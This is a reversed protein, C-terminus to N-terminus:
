EIRVHNKKKSFHKLLRVIVFYLLLIMTVEVSLVHVNADPHQQDPRHHTGVNEDAQWRVRQAVGRCHYRQLGVASTYSTRKAEVQPVRPTTTATATAATTAAAATSPSSSSPHTAAAAAAATTPSSPTAAAATASSSPTSPPTAAAAAAPPSPPTTTTTFSTTAAPTTTTTTTPSPPYPTATTTTTTTTAGVATTPSQAKIIEGPLLFVREASFM